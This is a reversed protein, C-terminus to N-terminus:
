EEPSEESAYRAAFRDVNQTVCIATLYVSRGSKGSHNWDYINFDMDAYQIDVSDLIGMTSEDLKRMNGGSRLYIAPKLRSDMNVKVKLHMFPTDDEHRPPKIKVNLGNEIFENALEQTPIILSFNRDGERNFETKMGSFNRFAIRAENIQIDKVEGNSNKIFNVHM